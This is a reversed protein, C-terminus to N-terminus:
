PMARWLMFTGGAALLTLGVLALMLWRARPGVGAAPDLAAARAALGPDDLRWACACEPCVTAGDAPDVPLGQLSYGCHPCRRFRIM